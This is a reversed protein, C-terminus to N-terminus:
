GSRSSGDRARDNAEPRAPSRVAAPRSMADRYDGTRSCAYSQVGPASTASPPASAPSAGRDPRPGREAARLGAIMRLTTTKGARRASCRSWHAPRSRSASTSVVTVRGYRKPSTASGVSVGPRGAGARCPPRSTARRRRARILLIAVLMLVILACSYAIARARLRRQAVCSSTPPPSVYEATM